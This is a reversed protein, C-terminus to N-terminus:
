FVASPRVNWHTNSLKRLAFVLSDIARVFWVGDRMISTTGLSHLCFTMHMLVFCFLFSEASMIQKFGDNEKGILNSVPVKVDDFTIYTTGSPWVGVRYLM